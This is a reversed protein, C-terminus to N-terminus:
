ADFVYGCDACRCDKRWENLARVAVAGMGALVSVRRIGITQAALAIRNVCEIHTDNLKNSLINPSQCRPCRTM